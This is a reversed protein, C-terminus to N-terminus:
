PHLTKVPKEIKEIVPVLNEFLIDTAFPNGAKNWHTDNKLYLTQNKQEARFEDLLDIYPIGQNDLYEKLIKQILFLDFDESNLNGTQFIKQTFSEDM